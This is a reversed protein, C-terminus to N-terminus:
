LMCESLILSPPSDIAAFPRKGEHEFQAFAIEAVAKHGMKNLLVHLTRVSSLESLIFRFGRTRAHAEAALRMRQYLGQGAATQAVAAMDALMGEGRAFSRTYKATLAETLAVLPKFKDPTKQSSYRHNFFDAWILCGMVEGSSDVAVTSLGEDVMAAFSPRLYDCYELLTVGLAKHLSSGHVFVETALAFSQAFHLDRLTIIEIKDTKSGTM